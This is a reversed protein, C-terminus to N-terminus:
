FDYGLWIHFMPDGRFEAQLPYAVDLKVYFTLLVSRFGFGYSSLWPNEYSQLELTANNTTYTNRNISNNENFPNGSSWALGTDFFGTLQLSNFFSNTVSGSYFYNVLPLRLEANFATAQSGAEQNFLYGRIPTVFKSFVIDESSVFREIYLPNEPNIEETATRNQPNFTVWNNVGGAFYTKPDPGFFNGYFFRTALIFNRSIPTYNKAEVEFNGFSQLSTGQYWSLNVKAKTGNLINPGMITTNDFTYNLQAGPFANVQGIFDVYEPPATSNNNSIIDIDFDIFRSFALVGHLSLRSTSTLPYLAGIKVEDLFYKHTVDETPVFNLLQRNISKRYYTLEYDMRNKLYRYGAFFDSSELDLFLSVGGYLQHNELQDNMQTELTLGVWRIPDFIVNTIINDTVFSPTFTSPGFLDKETQNNKYRSLFSNAEQRQRAATIVDSDFIYNDTDVYETVENTTLSDEIQQKAEEQQQSAEIIEQEKERLKREALYRRLIIEQRPTQMTFSQEDLNIKKSYITTKLDSQLTYYLTNTNRDFTFNTFSLHNNTIQRTIRTTKDYEYLNMIGKQDSIFVLRNENIPTPLFNDNLTNTIKGLQSRTTDLDYLYINFMNKEIGNFTERINRISDVSRNSSFYFQNTSPIFVPDLDDFYDNTLRRLAPRRISTLYLDTKNNTTASLLALSRGPAVSFDVVQDLTPLPIPLTSKTSLEYLYITTVGKNYDVFALTNDDSWSLLPATIDSDQNVLTFGSRHITTEESTETDRIKVWAKGNKHETYALYRGAPSVALDGIKHGSRLTLVPNDNFSFDYSGNIQNNLQKYYSSWDQLIRGYDRALTRSISKEENRIIRTLNLINSLVKNGYETALYNWFSYGVWAAEEGTYRNMILQDNESFLKRSFDDVERSWGNAAYLAAGETFWEPLELLYASQFIESISGGFLMDDIIVSSFEEILSQTFEDWSGRFAVELQPKVVDVQGSNDIIQEKLGVNSQLYDQHSNYIFINTKYYPQYGILDTLGDFKEELFLATQKALENGGDYFHVNFNESAYYRWTFSKYQIRSKGFVDHYNQAKIFLPLFIFIILVKINNM